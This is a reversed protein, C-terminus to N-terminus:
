GKNKQCVHVKSVESSREDYKDLVFEAVKSEDQKVATNAGHLDETEGSVSSYKTKTNKQAM